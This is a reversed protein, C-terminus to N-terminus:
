AKELLFLPQYCHDCDHQIKTLDMNSHKLHWNAFVHSLMLHGYIRHSNFVIRDEKGVPIGILAMGKPKTLCWAKAMAISDGWPNLSDGYRGLGSHEISSFSIVLDFLQLKKKIFRENIQKTTILNMRSDECHHSGNYDVSTVKSAGNNLAIIEIWPSESGIILVNKGAVKVHDRLYTTIENVTKIGYPGISISYIELFKLM